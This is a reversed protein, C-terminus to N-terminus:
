KVFAPVVARPAGTLMTLLSMRFRRYLSAKAVIWKV